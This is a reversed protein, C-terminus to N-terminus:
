KRNYLSRVLIFRTLNEKRNNSKTFDKEQTSKTQRVEIVMNAATLQTKIDPQTCFHRNM